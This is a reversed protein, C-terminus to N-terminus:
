AADDYLEERMLTGIVKGPWRPLMHTQSTRQHDPQAPTSLQKRLTDVVNALARAVPEPLGQVNIKEM